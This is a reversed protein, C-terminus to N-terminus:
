INKGMVEQIKRHLDNLDFPKALCNKFGYASYNVMVPDNSYGSAVIAKAEPDYQLLETIAEKGGIGAPITLDMIVVDFPEGSEKAERYLRLAGRGDGALGVRYGVRELMRGLADRVIEEDEMILIKSSQGVEVQKVKAFKKVVIDTTPLYLYFSAGRGWDSEATIYGNHKKIISYVITLGLGHGVEKTTFYPDFIKSLHENRIGAGTDKVTIKVYKGPNLPLNSESGIEENEIMFTLIGGQPM